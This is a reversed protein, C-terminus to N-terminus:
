DGVHRIIFDVSQRHLFKGDDTDESLDRQGIVQANGFQKGTITEPPVLAAIAARALAVAAGYDEAWCDCQVTTSRAGELGKLHSPRPDSVVQLVIAPLPAGKARAMWAVRDGVIAAVASDAILRARVGEQFDM